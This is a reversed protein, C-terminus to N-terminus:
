EHLRSMADGADNSSRRDRGSSVSGRYNIHACFNGSFLGCFWDVNLHGFVCVCVLCDREAHGFYNTACFSAQFEDVGGSRFFDSDARWDNHTDVLTCAVEANTRPFKPIVNLTAADGRSGKASSNEDPAGIQVCRDFAPNEFGNLLVGDRWACQM